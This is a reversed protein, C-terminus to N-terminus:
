NVLMVTLIETQAAWLMWKLMQLKMMRHVNKPSEQVQRKRYLNEFLSAVVNQL